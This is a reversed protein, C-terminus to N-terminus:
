RDYPIKNMINKSHRIAIEAEESPVALPTKLTNKKLLRLTQYMVEIVESIIEYSTKLDSYASSTTQHEISAQFSYLENITKEIQVIERRLNKGKLEAAAELLYAYTGKLSLLQETLDQNIKKILWNTSFFPFASLISRFSLYLSFVLKYGRKKEQYQSNLISNYDLTLM